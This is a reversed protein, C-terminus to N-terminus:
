TKNLWYRNPRKKNGKNLCIMYCGVRQGERLTLVRGLESRHKDANGNFMALRSLCGEISQSNNLMGSIFTHGFAIEFLNQASQPQVGYKKWWSEVMSKWALEEIDLLKPQEGNDRNRGCIEKVNTTGLITAQRSSKRRGPVKLFLHPSVATVGNAQIYAIWEDLPTYPEIEKGDTDHNQVWQTWEILEGKWIIDHKAGNRADDWQMLAKERSVKDVVMYHQLVPEIDFRGQEALRCVQDLNKISHCHPCVMVLVDLVQYPRLEEEEAFRFIYNDIYPAFDSEMLEPLREEERRSLSVPHIQLSGYRKDRGAFLEWGRRAAYDHWESVSFTFEQHWFFEWNEHLSLRESQSRCIGCQNGYWQLARERLQAWPRRPMKTSLNKYAVGFPM